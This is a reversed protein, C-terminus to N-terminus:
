GSALIIGAVRLANAANTLAPNTGGSSPFWSADVVYLNDLGHVRNSADLVSSRPDNGFRCTGCVHAIRENNEAQAILAPRYGKLVGRMRSRFEAVRARDHGHLRYRLRLDGRQGVVEVRNDAYPLDEMVTALVLSRGVFWDMPPALLPSAAQLLAGALRGAIHSGLKEAMEALVVSAPPLRGFSQVAGLKVGGANYFDNFGLEKINGDSPVPSKPVIRYLDVCHRMVNRGVLGSEKGLGDPWQASKSALMIAPTNLAGAALIVTKGRLALQTGRRECIVGTVRERDAELRLVRCGDVLQAGHSTLAPELCVRSSDNKCRRACLFGQCGLCGEVFEAAMPLRYPHMGRSELHQWIERNPAAIPPAERLVMGESDSRLRDPQGAVRYLVEAQAYYPQMDPYTIPWSEPLSSDGAGPFQARPTFDEPFLRELVMGYLASSGGTGSGIFPVFSRCQNGSCAQLSEAWRGARALISTSMSGSGKTGSSLKEPYDGRLGEGNTLSKGRECFLVKRGARALAYGITAGGMGTGVVIVDWEADQFSSDLTM